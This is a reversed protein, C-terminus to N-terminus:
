ELLAVFLIRGLDAELDLGAADGCGFDSDVARCAHGRRCARRQRRLGKAVALDGIRSGDGFRKPREEGLVLQRLADPQAYRVLPDDHPGQAQRRDFVRLLQRRSDAERGLLLDRHWEVLSNDIVPDDTPNSCHVTGGGLDVHDDDGGAAVHDGGRQLREALGAELRDADVERCEPHDARQARRSL